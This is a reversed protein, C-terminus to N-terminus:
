TNKTNKFWYPESHRNTWSYEVQLKRLMENLDQCENIIKICENTFITFMNNSYSGVGGYAEEPKTYLYKKYFTPNNMKLLLPKVLKVVDEVSTFSNALLTKLSNFDQQYKNM